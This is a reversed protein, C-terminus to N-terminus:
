TSFALKSATVWNMCESVIFSRFDSVALLYNEMTRIIEQAKVSRNNKFNCSKTNYM